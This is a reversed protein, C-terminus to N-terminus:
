DRKTWPWNGYKLGDALTGALMIAADKATVGDDFANRVMGSCIKQDKITHAYSMLIALLRYCNAKHISNEDSTTQTSM